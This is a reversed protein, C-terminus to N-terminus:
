SQATQESDLMREMVALSLGSVTPAEFLAALPLDVQFRERVRSMVQTALLSHGGLEFFDDEVGVQAVGFLRQWVEAVEEEIPNRPAVYAQALDPRSHSVTHEPSGSPQVSPTAAQLRSGLDRTSVIVQPGVGPQLVRAFAERGEAPLVGHKLEEARARALREPLNTDVAMGVQQWADWNIALVEPTSGSAAQAVADLYANAATYSAQGMGGALTSVSSCLVVFDPRAHALVRLLVQTGTVKPALVARSERGDDLQMVRAGAVGAAHIAGDIRGFRELAQQVMRQMAPEDSVDAAVTMIEAGRRELAEFTMLM